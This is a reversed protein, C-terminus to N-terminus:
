ALSGSLASWEPWTKSGRHVPTPAPRHPRPGATAQGGGAEAPAGGKQESRARHHCGQTAGICGSASSDGADESDTVEELAQPFARTRWLAKAEPCENIGGVRQTGHREGKAVALPSSRCDGVCRDGGCKAQAAYM